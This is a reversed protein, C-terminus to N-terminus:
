KVARRVLRNTALAFLLLSILAALLTALVASLRDISDEFSLSAILFSVTLGLGGLLGILSWTAPKAKSGIMREGISGGISIGLYKGIPRAAVAVFIGFNVIPLGPGINASLVLFGFIPLTFANNIARLWREHRFDKLLLGVAFGVVSTQLGSPAAFLISIAGLLLLPESFRDNLRQSLGLGVLAIVSAILYPLSLQTSFFLLLIALGILDDITALALFKARLGLAPAFLAIAALGLTIDTATPVAWGSVGSLAIYILAPFIVGLTAGLAPPVLNLRNKFHGSVFEERLEVGVQVFFLPLLYTEVFHAEESLKLGLIGAVAGLALSGFLLAAGFLENQLRRM